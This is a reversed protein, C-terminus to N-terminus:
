LAIWPALRDTRVSLSAVFAQWKGHDNQRVLDDAEFQKNLDTVSEVVMKSDKEKLRYFQAGYLMGNVTAHQQEWRCLV